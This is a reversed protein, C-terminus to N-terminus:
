GDLDIVLARLADVRAHLSADVTQLRGRVQLDDALGSFPALHQALRRLDGRRVGGHQNGALRAGALFDHRPEDMCRGRAPGPREHRQIAGRQGLLQELRLQKAVLAARERAGLLGLGPLHLQSDPPTSNRSSTM